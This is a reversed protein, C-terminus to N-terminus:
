LVIKQQVHRNIEAWQRHEELVKLVDIWSFRDHGFHNYLKSAFALDEPTDVTWRLSSYDIPNVLARLKFIEPHRYIYPTVHERWAPDDDEEWARRLADFSVAENDLGRPFTRPDITNSAYDLPQNSLFESIVLDVISPEIMPCDSTVRVIVDAGFQLAARYYRDLLDMEDGRSCPWSNAKCLEAILDDESKVTTAVVVENLRTARSLRVFVRKLMPEGALEMMVKGPLRSSGMRAQIIGIIKM